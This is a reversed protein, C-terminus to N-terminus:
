FRTVNMRYDQVIDSSDFYIILMTSTSSSKQHTDSAGGVIVNWYTDSKHIDYKIKDYTWVQYDNKHTVLDPPGFIEMIESQTTKGKEIKLKAMGATLNSETPLEKNSENCGMFLVVFALCGILATRM